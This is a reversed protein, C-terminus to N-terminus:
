YSTHLVLICLLRVVVVIFFCFFFLGIYEKREKGKRVQLTLHYDRHEERETAKMQAACIKGDDYVWNCRVMRFDCEEQEHYLLDDEAQILTEVMGGFTAGCGLRCEMPKAPRKTCRNLLHDELVEFCVWELCNKPCVVLRKPCEETEHHQQYTIEKLAASGSRSKMVGGRDIKDQHRKKKLLKSMTMNGYSHPDNGTQHQLAVDSQTSEISGDSGLSDVSSDDDADNGDYDADGTREARAQAAAQERLYAKAPQLWVEQKHKLPCGLTCGIIRKPCRRLQHDVQDKGVKFWEHCGWECIMFGRQQRKMSIHMTRVVKRRILSRPTTMQEEYDRLEEEVFANREENEEKKKVLEEQQKDREAMKDELAMKLTLTRTLNLEDGRTFPRSGAALKAEAIKDIILQRRAEGEEADLKEKIEQVELAIRDQRARMLRTTQSVGSDGGGGGMGMKYAMSKLTELRALEAAVRLERARAALREDKDRKKRIQNKWKAEMLVVQPDDGVEVTKKIEHRPVWKFALSDSYKHEMDYMDEGTEDDFRVKTINAEADKRSGPFRYMVVDGVNLTNKVV